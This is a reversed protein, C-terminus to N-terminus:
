NENVICIKSALLLKNRRISHIPNGLNMDCGVFAEYATDVVVKTQPAFVLSTEGGDRYQRGDM